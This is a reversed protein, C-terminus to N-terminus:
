SSWGGPQAMMRAHAELGWEPHDGAWLAFSHTFPWQRGYSTYTAGPVRADAYTKVTEAGYYDGWAKVLEAQHHDIRSRADEVALIGVPLTAGAATFGLARVLFNRRPTILKLESM